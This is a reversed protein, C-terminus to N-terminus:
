GKCDLEMEFQHLKYKKSWEKKLKQRQCYDSELVDLPLGTRKLLEEESVIDCVGCCKSQNCGLTDPILWMGCAVGYFTSCKDCILYLLDSM